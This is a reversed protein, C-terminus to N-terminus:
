NSPPAEIHFKRMRPGGEEITYGPPVAFLSADPESRQINTLMYTTEGFRPDSRKSMVTMKLDNSYWTESMVTIPMENGIEGAPITRTVRTGEAKVGSIEQTGLSEKKVAEQQTAQVRYEVHDKLIETGPASMLRGPMKRAIKEDQELVFNTGAVPDHIVIFSHPQGTAALPGIAPLSVEKRFRGQSDRYLNSQTKRTIHNGDALTQMSESIAAATFPSGTVIKGGHEGGFGLLEVGETVFGVNGADPGAMPSVEAQQFVFTQPGAMAEVHLVPASEQAGAIGAALLWAGGFMVSTCLKRNM